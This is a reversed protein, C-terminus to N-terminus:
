NTLKYHGDNWKSANGIMGKKKLGQIAASIGSSKACYDRVKPFLKKQIDYATFTILGFQSNKKKVVERVAKMVIRQKNIPSGNKSFKMWDAIHREPNM